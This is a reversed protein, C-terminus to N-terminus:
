RMLDTDRTPPEEVIKWRNVKGRRLVVYGEKKLSSLINRTTTIKVGTRKSVAESSAFLGNQLYEKVLDKKTIQTM